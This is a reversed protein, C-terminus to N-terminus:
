VFSIFLGPSSCARNVVSPIRKLTSSVRQIRMSRTLGAPLIRNASLVYFGDLVKKGRHLRQLRVMSRKYMKTSHEFLPDFSDRRLNDCSIRIPLGAHEYPGFPFAVIPDDEHYIRIHHPVKESFMNVYAINGCKPSGFTVCTINMDPYCLSFDLACFQSIAGGLSHGSLLVHKPKKRSIIDHVDDHIELYRRQFGRHVKVEDFKKSSQNKFFSIPVLAMDADYWLDRFSNTGQFGISLTTLWAHKTSDVPTKIEKVIYKSHQDEYSSTAVGLALNWVHPETPNIPQVRKSHPSM